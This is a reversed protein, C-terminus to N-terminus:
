RNGSGMPRQGGHQKGMGAMREGREPVLEAKQEDTLSGFFATFAPQVAELAALRASEIAIRNDFRETLDPRETTEGDAPRVPRLGDTAAEFAAAAALADTKLDELLVAQEDTLDIAHSLRVIAIEIGEAGREFNFFGGQGGGHRMGPGNRFGREGASQTEASTAAPANQALAPAVAGLGISATLLAVIATTTISKM